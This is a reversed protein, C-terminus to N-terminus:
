STAAILSLVFAGVAAATTVLALLMGVIKERRSFTRSQVARAAELAATAAKAAADATELRHLRGRLSEQRPPGAIERQIEAIEALLRRESDAWERRAAHLQEEVVAVRAALPEGAM